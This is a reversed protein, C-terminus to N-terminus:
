FETYKRNSGRAKEIPYKKENKIIKRELIQELDIGHRGIFRLVFFWVDALEDEIAERKGPDEFMRVCDEPKQFRFIELLESSETILGIALEKPDHFQDWDRDECFKRVRASMKAIESESIDSM